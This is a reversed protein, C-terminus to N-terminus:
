VKATSPVPGSQGSPQETTPASVLDAVERQRSDRVKLYKRLSKPDKDGIWNGADAVNGGTVALVNGAATRRLGHLARFPKHEVGARREAEHLQRNLAGYNYPKERTREQAGYFIWPGVYGDRERWVRALRFVRVADRPLPQTREQGMKDTARRWTVERADLDVDAWTLHRLANQRPGLVGALVLLGYARWELAKRPSLQALVAAWEDNSYEAMEQRREDKGLRIVYEALPNDAVLKRAKAFRYLHKVEAAHHAVQNAVMPKGTKDLPIRRLAARYDDLMEPTVQDAAFTEGAFRVFRRLRETVNRVTMPRWHDNAAIYRQVIELVTVRALRGAGRQALREAVGEAYAKAVKRNDRTDPWSERVRRGGERWEVRVLKTGHPTTLICVRARKGRLGYTGLTTETM